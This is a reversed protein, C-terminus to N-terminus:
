MASRPRFGFGAGFVLRTGAAVILGMDLIQDLTFPKLTMGHPLELGLPVCGSAM